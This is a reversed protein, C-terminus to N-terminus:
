RGNRPLAVVLPFDLFASSSFGAFSLLMLRKRRLVVSVLDCLWFSPAFTNDGNHGASKLEDM